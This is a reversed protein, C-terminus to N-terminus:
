GGAQSLVQGQRLFRDFAGSQLQEELLRQRIPDQSLDRQFGREERLEGRKARGEGSLLSEIDATGGLAKLRDQLTEGAAGASLERLARTQQQQLREELDGLETSVKGSGIRGLAGAKESIQRIGRAREDATQEMTSKFLDQAIQGRDPGELGGLKEDLAAQVAQLRPNDAPNFQTAILNDEPSVQSTPAAAVPSPTAAAPAAPTTAAVPPPAAPPAAQPAPAAAPPPATPAPPPTVPAGVPTAPSVSTPMPTVSSIPPLSPRPRVAPPPPLNGGPPRPVGPAAQDDSIRPIPRTGGAGTEGPFTPGIATSGTRISDPGQNRMTLESGPRPRAPATPRRLGLSSVIKEHNFLAM